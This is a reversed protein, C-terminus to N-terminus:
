GSMHRICVDLGFCGLSLCSSVLYSLRLRLIGLVVVIFRPYPLVSLVDREVSRSMEVLGGFLASYGGVCFFHVLLLDKEHDKMM